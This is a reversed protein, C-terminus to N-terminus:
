VVVMSFPQPSFHALYRRFCSRKAGAALSEAEAVFRAKAAAAVRTIIVLLRIVAVVLVIVMMKKDHHKNNHPLLLTLMLMDSEMM